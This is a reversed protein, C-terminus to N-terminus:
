EHFIDLWCRMLTRCHGRMTELHASTARNLAVIGNGGLHEREGPSAEIWQGIMQEDVEVHFQMGYQGRGLRFAQAPVEPHTAMLTASAPLSFTEGHWQFVTLGNDPLSSFLADGSAAPTPYVPFWGLERVPSASVTGGAARAMLQAGLCIGLMPMGQVICGALWDLERRIHALHEDNASQPGGMVILGAYPMVDDPLPDDRDMRLTHLTHGANRLLEGILAPPEIDLHQLVLFHMGEPYPCRGAGAIRRRNSWSKM